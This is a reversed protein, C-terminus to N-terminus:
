DDIDFMVFLEEVFEEFDFDVDEDWTEEHFTDANVQRAQEAKRATISALLKKWHDHKMPPPVGIARFKNIFYSKVSSMYGLATQLKVLPETEKRYRRAHSGIYTAFGGVFDSTVDEFRIRELTLNPYAQEMYFRLHGIACGEKRATSVKKTDFIHGFTGTRVAGTGVERASHANAMREPSASSALSSQASM